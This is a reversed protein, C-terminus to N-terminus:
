QMMMMDSSEPKEADPAAKAKEAAEAKEKEAAAAAEKAARERMKAEERESRERSMEIKAAAHEDASLKGDKDADFKELMAARDAAYQERRAAKDAEWKAAEEPELAGNKNKDFRKLVSAPIDGAAAPKKEKAADEARAPVVAFVLAAFLSATAVPHTKM